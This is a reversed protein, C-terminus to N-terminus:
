ELCSLRVVHQWVAVDDSSTFHKTNARDNKRQVAARRNLYDTIGAKVM